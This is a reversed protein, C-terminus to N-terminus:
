LIPGAVRAEARQGKLLRATGHLFSPRPTGKEKSQKREQIAKLGTKVM